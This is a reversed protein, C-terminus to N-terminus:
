ESFEIQFRTDHSDSLVSIKGRHRVVDLANLGCNLKPHTWGRM